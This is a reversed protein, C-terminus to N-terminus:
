GHLAGLPTASALAGATHIEDHTLLLADLQQEQLWAAADDRLLAISAAVEAQWAQPAVVTAQLYSGTAMSGTRPDIVHHRLGEAWRRKLTTSTAFGARTVDRPLEVVELTRDAWERPLREDTVAIRWPDILAGGIAIDGGLNVLVGSAGVELLEDVIIDAALGKGIAGPDLGVGAPLTVTMAVEDVRVSGMGPAPLVAIDGAAPISRATVEAFDADYGLRTMSELVTPDFLGDSERWAQCMRTVLLLLDDSVEIAGSGARANLRSLESTPRFRSWSQELLEVRGAALTLLTSEVNEDLAEVLVHCDTGMARFRIEQM